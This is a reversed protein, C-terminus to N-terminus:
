ASYRHIFDSYTTTITWRTRMWSIGDKQPSSRVRRGPTMVRKEKLSMDNLKEVLTTGVAGGENVDGIKCGLHSPKKASKTPSRSQMERELSEVRRRLTDNEKELELLHDNPELSDEHVPVIYAGTDRKLYISLIWIVKSVRPFSRM